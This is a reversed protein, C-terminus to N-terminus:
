GPQLKVDSCILRPLLYQTQQLELGIPNCSWETRLALPQQASLQLKGPTMSAFWVMHEVSLGFTILHFALFMVQLADLRMPGKVCETGGSSTTCPLRGSSSCSVM